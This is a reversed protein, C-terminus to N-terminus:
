VEDAGGQGAVGGQGITGLDLVAVANANLTAAEVEDAAGRSRFAIDQGAVVVVPHVHAIPGGFVRDLAVPNADGGVTPARQAVTGVADIQLVGAVIEDAAEIRALAVNATGVAEVPNEEEAVRMVVDDRIVEDAGIRLQVLAQSIGGPHLKSVADEQGLEVLGN